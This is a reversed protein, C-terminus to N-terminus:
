KRQEQKPPATIEAIATMLDEKSIGYPLEIKNSTMANITPKNRTRYTPPMGTQQQQSQQEKKPSKPQKGRKSPKGRNPQKGRKFPSKSSPSQQQQEQTVNITRSLWRAHKAFNKKWKIDLLKCAYRWHGPYGCDTCDSNRFHGDPNGFISQTLQKTSM